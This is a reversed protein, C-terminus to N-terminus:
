GSLQCLFRVTGNFSAPEQLVLGYGVWKVGPNNLFINNARLIIPVSGSITRNNIELKTKYEDSFVGYMIFHVINFTNLSFMDQVHDIKTFM